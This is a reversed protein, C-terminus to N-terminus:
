EGAPGSKRAERGGRDREASGEGGAPSPGPTLPSRRSPRAQLVNWIGDAMAEWETFVDSNWFRLVAFGQQQLWPDRREDYSKQNSENHQGGDLELIVRRELCVFDVIYNGVPFQRRFKFGAFRRSRLQTWVFMEAETQGRRLNRARERNRTM